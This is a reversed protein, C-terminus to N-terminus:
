AAVKRLDEFYSAIAQEVGAGGSIGEWATKVLGVLLYCRDIPAIAYVARGGPETLHVDIDEAPVAAHRRGAANLEPFEPEPAVPAALTEPQSM